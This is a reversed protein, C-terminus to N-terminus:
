RDVEEDASVDNVEMEKIANLEVRVNKCYTEGGRMSKLYGQQLFDSGIPLVKDM